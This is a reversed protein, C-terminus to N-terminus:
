SCFRNISITIPAKRRGKGASKVSGVRVRARRKVGVSMSEDTALAEQTTKKLVSKLSSRGKRKAEMGRSLAIDIKKEVLTHPEGAV